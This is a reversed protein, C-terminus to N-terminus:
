SKLRWIAEQLKPGCIEQCNDPVKRRESILNKVDARLAKDKFHSGIRSALNVMIAPGYEQDAPLEDDVATLIEESIDLELPAEKIGQHKQPSLLYSFNDRNSGAM